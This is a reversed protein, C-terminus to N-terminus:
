HYHLLFFLFPVLFKTFKYYDLHRLIWQAMILSNQCKFLSLKKLIKFFYFHVILFYAFQTLFLSYNTKIHLNGIWLSLFPLKGFRLVNLLYFIYLKNIVLIHDFWKLSHLNYYFVLFLLEALGYYIQNHVFYPLLNLNEYFSLMFIHHYHLKNSLILSNVFIAFM